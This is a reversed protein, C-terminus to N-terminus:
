ALFNGTNNCKVKKKARKYNTGKRSTIKLTVDSEIVKELNGKKLNLELELCICKFRYILTKSKGQVPNSSFQWLKSM